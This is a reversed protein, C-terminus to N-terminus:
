NKALTQIVLLRCSIFVQYGVSGVILSGDKSLEAPGDVYPAPTAGIALPALRLWLISGVTSFLRVLEWWVM